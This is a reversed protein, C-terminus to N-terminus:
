DSELQVASARRARTVGAVTDPHTCVDVASFNSSTCSLCAQGPRQAEWGPAPTPYGPKLGGSGHRTAVFMEKQRHISSNLNEEWTNRGEMNVGPVPETGRGTTRGEM